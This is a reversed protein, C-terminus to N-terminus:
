KCINMQTTCSKHTCTCQMPFDYAIQWFTIDLMEVFVCFNNDVQILNKYRHVNPKIFCSFCLAVNLHFYSLNFFHWKFAAITNYGTFHEINLTWISGDRWIRRFAHRLGNYLISVVKSGVCIWLESFGRFFYLKMPNLHILHSFIIFFYTNATHYQWM